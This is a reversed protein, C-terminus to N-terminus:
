IGRAGGLSRGPGGEESLERYRDRGGRAARVGRQGGLETGGLLEVVM